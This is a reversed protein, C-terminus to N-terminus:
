RVRAKVGVTLHGAYCVHLPPGSTVFDASEQVSYEELNSAVCM